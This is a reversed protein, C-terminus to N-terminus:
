TLLGVTPDKASKRQFMKRKGKCLFVRRVEFSLTTTRVDGRARLLEAQSYGYGRGRDRERGMLHFWESASVLFIQPLRKQGAKQGGNQTMKPTM